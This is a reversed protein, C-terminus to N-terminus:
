QYVYIPGVESLKSLSLTDKGQAIWGPRSRIGTEADYLVLHKRASATEDNILFEAITYAVDIESLRQSKHIIVSLCTLALGKYLNAVNDCYMKSAIDAHEIYKAVSVRALSVTPIISHLKPLKNNIHKIDMM